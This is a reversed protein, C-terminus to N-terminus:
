PFNQISWTRDIVKRLSSIDGDVSHGILITNRPQQHSHDPHGTRFIKQLLSYIDGADIMQSAGFQFPREFEAREHRQLQYNFTSTLSGSRAEATSTLHKLDRTDLIAICFERAPDGETDISIFVPDQYKYSNRAAEEMEAINTEMSDNSADPAASLDLCYRLAKISGLTTSSTM